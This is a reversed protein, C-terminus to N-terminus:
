RRGEGDISDLSRLHGGKPAVKPEPEPPWAALASACLAHSQALRVTFDLSQNTRKIAGSAMATLRDEDSLKEIQDMLQEVSTLLESSRAAHDRGTM